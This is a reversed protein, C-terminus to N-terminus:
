EHINRMNAKNLHWDLAKQWRFDLKYKIKELIEIDTLIKRTILDHHKICLTIKNWEEDPGGQSRTIIHHVQLGFRVGCGFVRCKCGDLEIIERDISM